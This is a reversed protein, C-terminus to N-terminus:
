VPRIASASEFIEYPIDSKQLIMGLTLGALGAGVILVKPRDSDGSTASPKRHTTTSNTM